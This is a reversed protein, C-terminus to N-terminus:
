CVAGIKTLSKESLSELYLVECRSTFAETFTTSIIQSTNIDITGALILMSKSSRRDLASLFRDQAPHSWSHVEDILIINKRGRLNCLQREIIRMGDQMIKPAREVKRGADSRCSWCTGCSLFSDVNYNECNIARELCKGLTTKGVGPPGLLLYNQPFDDKKLAAKMASKATRQGIVDRFDTPEFLYRSKM